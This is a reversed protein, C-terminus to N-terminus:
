APPMRTDGPQTPPSEQQLPPPALRAKPDFSIAPLTSSAAFEFIAVAGLMCLVQVGILVAQTPSAQALLLGSLGTVATFAYIVVVAGRKSLGRRVLRHSLHNLDGVMPSRGHWLRVLVVAIFDYLPIALVVLPMLLAYWAGGPLSADLPVYTTRATLFALTFGVVLSGGDGMFIRAPPFNLVLFGALAGVLLALCAAVFWQGNLLAAVLFLCSAIAAVGGCLGDMNDMFNLANTVVLFWLVTILISLWPGGVHSDLLTLLRTQGLTAIVAAPAIMVILKLVPGLPRRDDILGLVHLLTICALFLAALPTQEVIGPIHPAVSPLLQQILDPALRVAALGIALPLALGLFIGVGGTNPIPRAEAKIQGRMAQSDFARLRLAMARAVLTAPLSIALAVMALLVVVTVV